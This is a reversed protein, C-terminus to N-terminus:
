DYKVVVRVGRASWADVLSRVEEAERGVGYRALMRQQGDYGERGEAIRRLKEEKSTIWVEELAELRTTPLGTVAYADPLPGHYIHFPTAHGVVCEDELVDRAMFLDVFWVKRIQSLCRAGAVNSHILHHQDGAQIRHFSFVNSRDFPLDVTENYVQRCVKWLLPLREAGGAADDLTPASGHYPFFHRSTTFAKDISSLKYPPFVSPSLVLTRTRLSQDIHLHLSTLCLKWIKLRLEAPLLLLPCSTSNHFTAANSSSLEFSRSLVESSM